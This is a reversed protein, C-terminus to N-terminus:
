MGAPIRSVRVPRNGKGALWADVSLPGPGFYAILLAGGLISINKMFSAMDMQRALPDTINWFQHLTLTVPVLFLVLLWAGFRTKYGLLISLGGIFEIIGSLPVLVSSFPVGQAGAYAITEPKFHGSASLIFLIAFLVRGTLVIYKM